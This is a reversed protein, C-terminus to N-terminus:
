RIAAKESTDEKACAQIYASKTSFKGNEHFKWHVNACDVENEEPQSPGRDIGEKLVVSGAIIGRWVQPVNSRKQISALPDGYKHRLVQAWIQNPRILMRWGLKASIQWGEQIKLNQGM